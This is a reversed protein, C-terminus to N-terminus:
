PSWGVSHCGKLDAIISNMMEDSPEGLGYKEDM